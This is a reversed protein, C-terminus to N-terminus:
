QLAGVQNVGVAVPVSRSLQVRMRVQMPICTLLILHGATRACVSRLRIRRLLSGRLIEATSPLAAALKARAGPTAAKV